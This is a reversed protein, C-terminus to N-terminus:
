LHSCVFSGNRSPNRPLDTPHLHANAEPLVAGNEGNSATWVDIRNVKKGTDKFKTQELYAAAAFSSSFIEEPAVDQAICTAFPRAHPASLSFFILVTGMRKPDSM